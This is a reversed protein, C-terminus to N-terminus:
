RVAASKAIFARVDRLVPLRERQLISFAGVPEAHGANKFYQTQVQGGARRMAAALSRTNSPSVTTDRLGQMLLLPPAGARVYNIPQTRPFNAPPGFLDKLYEDTFPLFNYPGALGIVGRL